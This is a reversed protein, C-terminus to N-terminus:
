DKSSEWLNQNYSCQAGSMHRGVSSRERGRSPYSAKLPKCVTGTCLERNIKRLSRVGLAKMVAEYRKRGSCYLFKIRSMQVPPSV